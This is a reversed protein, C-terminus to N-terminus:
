LPIDIDLQDVTIPGDAKKALEIPQQMGPQAFLKTIVRIVLVILLTFLILGNGILLLYRLDSFFPKSPTNDQTTTAGAATTNTEDSSTTLLDPSPAPSVLETNSLSECQASTGDTSDCSPTTEDQGVVAEPAPASQFAATQDASPTASTTDTLPTPSASSAVSSRTIGPSATLDEDALALRKAPNVNRPDAQSVTDARVGKTKQDYIVTAVSFIAVGFVAIAVIKERKNVRNTM